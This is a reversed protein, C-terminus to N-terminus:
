SGVRKVFPRRSVLLRSIPSAIWSSLYLLSSVDMFPLFKVKPPVIKGPNLLGKPDVIKKKKMFAAYRSKGLVRRSRSAFWLGANYLTGGHREAISIPRLAKAMRFPYFFSGADDLIYVLIALQGNQVVFAEMGLLDRSLDAEIEGWAERFKDLPLYFEGVLISPGLKKIRMPYFRDEWAHTATEHDLLLSDFRGAIEELTKKDAAREPIAMVVLFSNEPISEDGGLEKKMRIYGPSHFSISYPEMEDCLTKSFRHCAGADPFAVAFPVLKEAERCRLRLRTIVGLTGCAQYHLDLDQGTCTMVEGDLGMVDIETVVDRMNGYLLSGLGAGGMAFWGGVTSSPASTPVIRNDLDVGKLERSLENWVIGPEVDVTMNERDVGLVGNMETLDLVIGGGTPIAGGYGSSAQGRPTVPVGFEAGTLLVQRVDEVSRAVVVAEPRNNILSMVLAPMEGLDHDYTALVEPDFSVREALGGNLRECTRRNM